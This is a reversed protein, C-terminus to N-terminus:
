PVPVMLRGPRISGTDDAPFRKPSGSGRIRSIFFCSALTYALISTFGSPAKRGIPTLLRRRLAGAPRSRLPNRASGSTGQANRRHEHRLLLIKEQIRYMRIKGLDLDGFGLSEPKLDTKQYIIKVKSL